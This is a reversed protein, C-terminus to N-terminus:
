SVGVTFFTLKKPRNMAGVILLTASATGRSRRNAETGNGLKAVNALAPYVDTRSRLCFYLEEKEVPTELTQAPLAPPLLVAGLQTVRIAVERIAACRHGGALFAGGALACAPLATSQRWCAQRAGGSTGTWRVIQVSDGDPRLLRM